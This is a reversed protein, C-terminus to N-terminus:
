EDPAARARDSQVLLSRAAARHVGITRAQVDGALATPGLPEAVTGEARRRALDIQFLRDEAHVWGQHYFLDAWSHTRIHPVGAADRVVPGGGRGPQRDNALAAGTGVAILLLALPVVLLRITSSM